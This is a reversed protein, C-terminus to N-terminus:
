FQLSSIRTGRMFVFKIDVTPYFKRVLKLIDRKLVVSMHGLYPIVMMIEKRPVDAVPVKPVYFGNLVRSVCNLVFNKPFGNKYMKSCLKKLDQDFVHYDSAIKYM